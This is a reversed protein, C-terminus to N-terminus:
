LVLIILYLLVQATGDQIDNTLGSYNIEQTHFLRLVTEQSISKKLPSGFVPM